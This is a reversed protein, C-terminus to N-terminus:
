SNPNFLSLSANDKEGINKLLYLLRFRAIARTM